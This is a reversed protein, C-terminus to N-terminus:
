NAMIQDRPVIHMGENCLVNTPISRVHQLYTNNSYKQGAHVHLM